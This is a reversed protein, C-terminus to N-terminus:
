KQWKKMLNRGIDELLELRDKPKTLAEVDGMLEDLGEATIEHNCNYCEFTSESFRRVLSPNSCKPCLYAIGYAWSNFPITVNRRLNSYCIQDVLKQRHNLIFRMLEDQRLPRKFSLIKEIERKMDNLEKKSSKRMNWTSNDYDHRYKKVYTM